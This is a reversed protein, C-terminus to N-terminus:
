KKQDDASNNVNDEDINLRVLLEKKIENSIEDILFGQMPYETEDTFCSEINDCEGCCNTFTELEEPDEFLATVYICELLKLSDSNSILYLYGDPNLFTYIGSSYKKSLIFPAQSSNIIKFNESAVVSPGVSILSSRSRLDILSPLPVKSRMIKCGYDFGCVSKDVEEVGVCLSQLIINDFKRTYDNLLRRLHKARKKRYLYLVYENSLEIDDSYAKLYEKIDYILELKNAMTYNLFYFGRM